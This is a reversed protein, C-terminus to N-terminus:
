VNTVLGLKPIEYEGLVLNQGIGNIKTNQLDLIGPLDLLRVEIQSIRVVLVEEQEWLAALESYYKEIAEEIFPKVDEWVYGNQFTINTEIDTVANTVGQVTVSHGIPATGMGEGSNTVPDVATQVADILGESPAKYESDIITVLVTGGGQWARKVKNGGVGQLDNVKRNYDARNGGFAVSELSAFYRERLVETDEENEGPIVVETIQAVTLGPIYTVPTTNGTKNGIEGATECTLEYSRINDSLGNFESIAYNLDGLSFRTGFPLDVDFEGKVIAKTAEKPIIGREAARRILYSRSATDAFTNKYIKELEIYLLRLEISAPSLSDWILSGERKDWKDLIRDLMRNLILEQSINSYEDPM